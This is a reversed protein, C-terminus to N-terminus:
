PPSEGLESIVALQASRVPGNVGYFDTVVLKGDQGIHYGETGHAFTVRIVNGIEHVLTMRWDYTDVAGDSCNPESPWRETCVPPWNKSAWAFGGFAACGAKRAPLGPLGIGSAFPGACPPGRLCCPEPEAILCLRLKGRRFEPMSDTYGLRYTEDLLVPVAVRAVKAVEDAMICDSKVIHDKASGGKAVYVNQVGVPRLTSTCAHLMLAHTPFVVFFLLRLTEM